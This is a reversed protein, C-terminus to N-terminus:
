RRGEHILNRFTEVHKQRKAPTQDSQVNMTKLHCEVPRSVGIGNLIRQGAQLM